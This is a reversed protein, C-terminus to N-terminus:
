REAPSVKTIPHTRSYTALVSELHYRYVGTLCALPQTGVSRYLPNTPQIWPLEESGLVEYDETQPRRDFGRPGKAAKQEHRRVELWYPLVVNAKDQIWPNRRQSDSDSIAHRPWVATFIPM